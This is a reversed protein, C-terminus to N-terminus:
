VARDDRDTVTKVRLDNRSEVTCIPNKEPDPDSTWGIKLIIGAM